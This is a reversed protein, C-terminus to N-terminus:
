TKLHFLWDDHNCLRYFLVMESPYRCEDTCPFASRGWLGEFLNRYTKDAEYLKALPDLSSIRICALNLFTKHHFLIYSFSCFCLSGVDRALRNCAHIHALSFLIQLFLWM